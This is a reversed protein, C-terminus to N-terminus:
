RPAAAASRRLVFGAHHLVGDHYQGFAWFGTDDLYTIRDGDLWFRGTYADRRGGRTESYRGDPTLFQTMDRDADTWAGLRPDDADRADTGAPRLPAGDRVVLAGEVVVARLARPPVVLMHRIQEAGVTGDIVAFTAANGPVLDFAGSKAPSPAAFVTEVYLPVTSAGRGDIRAGGDGGDSTAIVGGAVHLDGATTRAAAVHIRTDTVVLRRM